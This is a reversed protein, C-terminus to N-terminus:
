KKTKDGVLEHYRAKDAAFSAKVAASKAEAQVLEKQLDAMKKEAGAIDNQLSAPIKRGAAKLDDAEKRFGNLSEQASKQLLHISNIRADVQQLNRGLALDIENENSYTNLLANDKRRQEIAAQDAPSKKEPDADVVAAKKKILNGKDDYQVRDKSAYEPPVVEGYHTTGKDDVWKYLKAEATTSIVTLLILAAGFTGTKIM